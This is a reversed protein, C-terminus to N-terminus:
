VRLMRLARLCQQGHETGVLWEVLVSSERLACRLARSVTQRVDVSDSANCDGATKMLCSGITANRIGGLLLFYLGGILVFLMVLAPAAHALGTRVDVGLAAATLQVLALDIGALIAGDVLSAVLPEWGAGLHQLPIPPASPAKPASQEAAPQRRRPRSIGRVRALGDLPDELDPLLPLVAMLVEDPDLGVAKAYARIANRGYLGSPLEGFAGQEIHEVVLPRLGSLRRVGELSLGKQERSRRLWEHPSM